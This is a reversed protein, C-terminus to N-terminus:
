ARPPGCVHANIRAVVAVVLKRTLLRLLSAVLWGVLLLGVAAAAGPLLATLQGSLQELMYSTWSPFSM